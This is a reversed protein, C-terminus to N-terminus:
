ILIIERYKANEGEGQVVMIKNGKALEDEVLKWLAIAKRVGQTITMGQNSSLDKLAAAVDSALNVSLRVVGRDATDNANSKANAYNSTTTPHQTATSM